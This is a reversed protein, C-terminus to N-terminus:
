PHATSCLRVCHFLDGACNGFVSLIFSNSSNVAAAVNEARCDYVGNDAATVDNIRLRNKHMRIRDSTAHLRCDVDCSAVGNLAHTEAADLRPM